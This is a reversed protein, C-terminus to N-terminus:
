ERSGCDRKGSARSEAGKGKEWRAEKREVDRKRRTRSGRKKELSV